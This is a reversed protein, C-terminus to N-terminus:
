VMKCEKKSIAKIKDGCRLNKVFYPVNEVKYINEGLPTCWLSEVAFLPWGDADQIVYFSSKNRKYM